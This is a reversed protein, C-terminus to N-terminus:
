LAAVSLSIDFYMNVSSGAGLEDVEVLYTRGTQNQFGLDSKITHAGKNDLNQDIVVKGSLIIRGGLSTVYIGGGMANGTNNNGYIVTDTLKLISSNVTYIAGGANGATNNTFVCNRVDAATNDNRLNIAGGCDKEAINGDFTCGDITLNKIYEAYIAGGAGSYASTGAPDLSQNNTFQCDKFSATTTSTGLCVAGGNGWNQNHSTYASGSTGKVSEDFKATRFDKSINGDFVCNEVQVNTNGGNDAFIAGGRTSINDSLEINKIVLTGGYCYIAGGMGQYITYGTAAGSTNTTLKYQTRKYESEVASNGYIKGGTITVKNAKQAMFIAGGREASNNYIEGGTMNMVADYTVHITGEAYGTTEGIKETV